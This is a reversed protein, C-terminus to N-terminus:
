SCIVAFITVHLLEFKNFDCYPQRQLWGRQAAFNTFQSAQMFVTLVAYANLNSNISNELAVCLDLQLYGRLNYHGFYLKMRMSVLIFFFHMFRVPFLQSDWHDRLFRMFKVAFLQTFQLTRFNLKTLIITLYM